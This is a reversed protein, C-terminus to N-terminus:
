LAAKIKEIIAAYEEDTLLVAPSPNMEFTSGFSLGGEYKPVIHCHLHGGKDNYMGLNVKRPNFAKKLAASVTRMDMAFAATEEPSLDFYENVHDKYAIICRGKYSQNRFLYLTSVGLECIPIMIDHLAQNETCYMCTNDKM